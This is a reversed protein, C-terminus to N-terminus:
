HVTFQLAFAEMKSILLLLLLLLLSVMGFIYCFTYITPFVELYISPLPLADIVFSFCRELPVAYASSVHPSLCGITGAVAVVLFVGM